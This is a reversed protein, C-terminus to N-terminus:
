WVEVGDRRMCAKIAQVALTNEDWPEGHQRWVSWGDRYLIAPGDECHLRGDEDLLIRQPHDSIAVVEEHWWVWGANLMLDEDISFRELVSDSWEMIDRFFSVYAGWAADYAGGRSNTILSEVQRAVQGAVQSEVQSRVQSEVQNWVQGAVQRAVQSEVQSNTLAAAFGGGLVASLPSGMRLVISPRRLNCLDYARLAAAEAKDFDAPKTSLGIEVWKRVWAPFRAAQEPTLKTITAMNIM